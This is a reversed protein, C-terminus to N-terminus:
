IYDPMPETHFEFKPDCVIKRRKQHVIPKKGMEDRAAIM